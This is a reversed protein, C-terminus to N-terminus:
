RELKMIKEHALEPECVQCARQHNEGAAEARQVFESFYQSERLGALQLARNRHNEIAGAVPILDDIEFCQHPVAHDLAFVKPQELIRVIWCGRQRKQLACQLRSRVLGARAERVRSRPFRVVASRLMVSVRRLIVSVWRKM